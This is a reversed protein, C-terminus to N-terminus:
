KCCRAAQSSQAQQIARCTAFDYFQPIATQDGVVPHYSQGITGDLWEGSAHMDFVASFPTVVGHCDPKSMVAAGSYYCKSSLTNGYLYETTGANTCVYMWESVNPDSFANNPDKVDGSLAGGGGRKGCLRKGAWDCFAKADCWGLDYARTKPQSLAFNNLNSVNLDNTECEKSQVVPTLLTDDYFQKYESWTIPRQDICFKNDINIMKAGFKSTCDLASGGSGGSGSAGAGGGSGSNGSSGSSGASAGVGAGAGVGATAGGGDNSTGGTGGSCQCAKWKGDAGCAQGGSCAGPGVCTRTDNPQCSKPESGSSDDGGCSWAFALAVCTVRSLVQVLRSRDRPRGVDVENRKM